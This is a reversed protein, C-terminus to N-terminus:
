SLYTANIFRSYSHQQVWEFLLVASSRSHGQGGWIVGIKITRDENIDKSQTFSPVYFQYASQDHLINAYGHCHVELHSINVTL